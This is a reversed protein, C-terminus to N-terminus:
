QNIVKWHQTSENFLLDSLVIPLREKAINPLQSQVVQQKILETARQNITTLDKGSIPYFQSQQVDYYQIDNEILVLEKPLKTIIVQNRDKDIEFSVKSLDYGVNAKAEIMVIVKKEVPWLDFFLKEDQRYTYVEAFTGEVLMLKEVEEIRQLIINAQEEANAKDSYSVFWFAGLAITLTSLLIFTKKSM